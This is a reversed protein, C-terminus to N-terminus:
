FYKKFNRGIWKYLASTSAMFQKVFKADLVDSHEIDRDFDQRMDAVVIADDTYMVSESQYEQARNDLNDSGFFVVDGIVGGKRHLTSKENWMRVEIGADLLPRIAYIMAAFLIKGHSKEDTSSLSNTLIRIKVGAKHATVLASVFKSGPIFYPAYLNIEKPNGQKTQETAELIAGLHGKLIPRASTVYPNGLIGVAKSNGYNMENVKRNCSRMKKLGYYEERMSVFNDWGYWWIDPNYDAVMLALRKFNLQFQYHFSCAVPGTVHYDVDYWGHNLKEKKLKEERYSDFAHLKYTRTYGSGGMILTEGDVILLKEHIAYFRSGPRFLIVHAKCEKLKLAYDMYDKNARHDIVVRVDLGAKAKTCLIKFIDKGIQDPSISFTSLYISSRATSILETRIIMLKEGDKLPTILNGNLGARMPFSDVVAMSPQALLFLCVILINRAFSM